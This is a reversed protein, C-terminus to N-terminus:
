TLGDFEDAYRSLLSEFQPTLLDILGNLEPRAGPLLIKMSESMEEPSLFFYPDLDTEMTETILRLAAMIQFAHIEKLKQTLFADDVDGYYHKVAMASTEDDAEAWLLMEGLDWMPHGYAGGDWDIFMIEGSPAFFMNGFGMDNHTFKPIYPEIAKELTDTIRRFRPVQDVWKSSQYGTATKGSEMTTLYRRMTDFPWWYSITEQVAWAGEHVVKIRDIIKRIIVPDRMQNQTMREGLQFESVSLNPEAYVLRPGVGLSHAAITCQMVATQRTRYQDFGVRVAFKQKEGDTVFYTRNQLGGLIQEVEVKRGGWIQLTEIYDSTKEASWDRRVQSIEEIIPQNESKSM